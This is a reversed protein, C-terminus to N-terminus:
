RAVPGEAVPTISRMLAEFAKQADPPLYPGSDLQILRGDVIRSAFWRPNTHDVRRYTRAVWWGSSDSTVPAIREVQQRSTDLEQTVTFLAYTHGDIPPLAAAREALQDLAPALPAGGRRTPDYAVANWERWFGAMDHRARAALVPDERSSLRDIVERTRGEALLAHAGRIHTVLSEPTAIGEDELTMRVDGNRFEHRGGNDVHEWGVPVQLHVRAEGVNVTIPAPGRACGALLLAALAVAGPAAIAARGRGTASAASMRAEGRRM